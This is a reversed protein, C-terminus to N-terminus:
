KGGKLRSLIAHKIDDPIDTNNIHDSFDQESIDPKKEAKAKAPAAAKEKPKDGSIDLPNDVAAHVADSAKSGRTAYGEPDSSEHAEHRDWYKNMHDSDYFDMAQQDYKADDEATRKGAHQNGHM